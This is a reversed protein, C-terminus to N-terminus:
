FVGNPYLDFKLVASKLSNKANVMQNKSVENQGMGLKNLSFTGATASVEWRFAPPFLM